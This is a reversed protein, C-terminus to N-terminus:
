PTPSADKKTKRAYLILARMLAQTYTKGETVVGKVRCHALGSQMKLEAELEQGNELPIAALEDEFSVFRIHEKCAGFVFLTESDKARLMFVEDTCSVIDYGMERAFELELKVGELRTVDDEASVRTGM